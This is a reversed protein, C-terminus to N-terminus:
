VVNAHCALWSEYKISLREDNAYKDIDNYNVSTRTEFETRRTAQVPIDDTSLNLAYKVSLHKENLTCKNILFSAIFVFLLAAHFM